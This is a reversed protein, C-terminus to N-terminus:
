KLAELTNLYYNKVYDLDFVYTNQNSTDCDAYVLIFYGTRKDTCFTLGKFLNSVNDRIEEWTNENEIFIKYINKIDSLYVDKEFPSIFNPLKITKTLKRLNQEAIYFEEHNEALTKDKFQRGDLTEYVTVQKKVRQLVEKEITLEKM